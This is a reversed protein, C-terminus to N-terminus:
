AAALFNVRAFESLRGDARSIRTQMWMRQGDGFPFAAPFPFPGAPPAGDAGNIAALFRWPGGFFQISSNQPIGQYVFQAAGTESAWPEATDVTVTILQTAESAIAGLGLEAAGLNIIKPGDDVRPQGGQIRPTNSRIYHNLGTLNITQGLHNQWALSAAYVSWEDRQAQTLTNEWGIALARVANRVAVQRDTNPNVPVTRARIYAGSRNHSYVTAGMSGSRQQGEPFVILAM